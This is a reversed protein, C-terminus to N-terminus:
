AEHCARGGLAVASCGFLSWLMHEPWGGHQPIAVMQLVRSVGESTVWDQICPLSKDISNLVTGIEKTHWHYTSIFDAKTTRGVVIEPLMGKMAQRHLYKHVEGRLRLREPTSFSFQIMAATYFPQRLEIGKESAMLEEMETAHSPYPSLLTLLQAFQGKRGLGADSIDRRKRLQHQHAAQMRPTLWRCPEVKFVDNDTLRSRLIKRMRQPLLPYCGNRLGWWLTRPLGAIQADETLCAWLDRWRGEAIAEAFYARTGDLWEDGGGGCLLVRSGRESAATRIGSGMTGNPYQPFCHLRRARERYWDLSMRSPDIEFVDLGTHAAVARAYGLENAETSGDFKLTYGEVGRVPLQGQSHLRGAVAFLASSDLGGSVECALPGVTRSARRVQDALLERYYVVFDAETKCPLKANFDPLWYPETNLGARDVTLRHAAVLRQLGVWFTEDRTAWDAALFEAVLGENLQRPVWSLELLPRIESAFSLVTGDWHYVLPKSGMRDRACFAKRRHADWIVFAFDGDIHALCQIGWAEYARLVLESDARTRLRAGTMSLETRLEEWNSLWGDMVLVLSSDENTLPQSEERAEPTTRLLCHGFAVSADTWHSVGDPGRYNMASTMSGILRPDVPAGDFRIIGAIGSM